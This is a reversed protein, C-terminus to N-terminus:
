RRVWRSCVKYGGYGVAVGVINHFIDDFEFLGRKTILQLVEIAVTCALGFLLTRGGGNGRGCVPFLVGVPMLMLINLFNEQIFYTNGRYIELYSWFPLLEYHYDDTMTRSFVTSSLVLFLYVNLLEMALAQGGRLYRKKVLIVLIGVVALGWLAAAVGWEKGLGLIQVYLSGIFDM